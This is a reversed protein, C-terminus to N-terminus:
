KGSDNGFLQITDDLFEQFEICDSKAIGIAQLMLWEANRRSETLVQKILDILEHNLVQYKNVTICKLLFLSHIEIPLTFLLDSIVSESLEPRHLILFGMNEALLCSEPKEPLRSLRMWCVNLIALPDPFHLAHRRFEILCFILLQHSFENNSLVANCVPIFIQPDDRFRILETELVQRREPEACSLFEQLLADYEM